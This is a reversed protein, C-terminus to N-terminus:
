VVAIAHRAIGSRLVELLAEANEFNSHDLLHEKGFRDGLVLHPVGDLTCIALSVIEDFHWNRLGFADRTIFGEQGVVLVRRRHENSKEEATPTAM